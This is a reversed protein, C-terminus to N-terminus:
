NSGFLDDIKITEPTVEEEEAEDAASASSTGGGSFFRHRYKEAWMRDNEHYRQEWDVGDGNGVIPLRLTSMKSCESFVAFGIKEVSDPVYVARVQLGEFARDALEYVAMGDIVDPIVVIDREGVYKKIIVKENQIEYEFDSKENKEYTTFALTSNEKHTNYKGLLEANEKSQDYIVVESPPEREIFDEAVKACGVFASASLSLALILAALKIKQM